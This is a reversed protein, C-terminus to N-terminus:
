FMVVGCNYCEYCLWKATKSDDYYDQIDDSLKIDNSHILEAIKWFEQNDDDFIFRISSDKCRPCFYDKGPSYYTM